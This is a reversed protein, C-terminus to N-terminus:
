RTGWRKQANRRGLESLCTRSCTNHNKSHNPTFLNGCILCNKQKKFGWSGDKRHIETHCSHCLIVCDTSTYNPHHRQLKETKGCQACCAGRLSIKRHTLTRITARKRIEEPTM